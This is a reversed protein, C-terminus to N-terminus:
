VFFVRGVVCVCVMQSAACRQTAVIHQTLERWCLFHATPKPTHSGPSVPPILIARQWRAGGSGRRNSKRGTKMQNQKEKQIGRAVKESTSSEGHRQDSEDGGADPERHRPTCSLRTGHPERHQLQMLQPLQETKFAMVRARQKMVFHQERVTERRCKISLPKAFFFFFFQRSTFYSGQLRLNICLM